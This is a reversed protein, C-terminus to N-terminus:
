KAYVTFIDSYIPGAPTLDSRKLQVKDIVDRGFTKDNYKSFISELKSNGRKIRFITMHPIFPKLLFGIEAMKSIVLEALSSLRKRGEEDVGIWIVRAFNSSPFGGVGTYTVNISKFQLELLKAKIKDITDLNVTGLFALTFHFNQKEVPKIEQINWRTIEMLEKQLIEIGNKNSVDVAIFTRVGNL